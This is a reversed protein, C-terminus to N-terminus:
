RRLVVDEVLDVFASVTQVVAVMVFSVNKEGGRRALFWLVM